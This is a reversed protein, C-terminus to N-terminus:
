CHAILMYAPAIANGTPVIVISAACQDLRAIIKPDFLFAVEGSQAKLPSLCVASVKVDASSQVKGGILAAIEHISVEKPLKM